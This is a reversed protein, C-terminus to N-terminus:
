VHHQEVDLHRPHVTVLQGRVHLVVRTEAVHRDDHDGGAGALLMALARELDAHLTVEALRVAFRVQQAVDIFHQLRVMGSRAISASGRMASTNPSSAATACTRSAIASWASM